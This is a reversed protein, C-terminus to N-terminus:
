PHPAKKLPRHWADYAEKASAATAVVRSEEVTFADRPIYLDVPLGVTRVLLYDAFVAEVRGIPREGADVVSIHLAVDTM